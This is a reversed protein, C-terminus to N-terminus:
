QLCYIQKASELINARRIWNHRQAIAQGTLLDVQRGFLVELERKMRTLKLSCKADSKCVIM